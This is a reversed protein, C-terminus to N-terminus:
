GGDGTPLVFEALQKLQHRRDLVTDQEVFHQVPDEVPEFTHDREIPDSTREHGVIPLADHGIPRPGFEARDADSRSEFLRQRAATELGDDSSPAGADDVIELGVQPLFGLRLGGSADDGLAAARTQRTRQQHIAPQQSKKNKVLRSDSV